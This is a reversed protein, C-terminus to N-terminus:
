RTDSDSPGLGLAAQVRAIAAAEGEVHMAGTAAAIAVSAPDDAAAALTQVDAHVIVDAPGPGQAAVTGDGIRFRQQQGAVRFEVLLAPARAREPRLMAKLMLGLWEIHFAEDAQSDAVLRLGWRALAVLAPELQRGLATLEYVMSAAPPPLTRREVVGATELEKLRAALIDTSAGPLGDLLDTYRKPGTVLERVILLTWRDGVVDLAKALACAQAYSRKSVGAV